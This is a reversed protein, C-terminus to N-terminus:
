TKELFDQQTTWDQGTARVYQREDQCITCEPPVRSGESSPPYHAGCTVCIHTITYSMQSLCDDVSTFLNMSM